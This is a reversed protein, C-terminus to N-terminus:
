AASRKRRQRWGYGSLSLAGITLLTCSAPEPVASATVGTEFKILNYHGHGTQSTGGAGWAVRQQTGAAGQYGSMRLIGDVYLEASATQLNYALEYLHYGSGLGTLTMQPGLHNSGDIPFSTALQVIPDGEATSGINVHYATTGNIYDLFVGRDLDDPTNVVRLYGTLRWGTANADAVILNSMTQQYFSAGTTSADDISWADIGLGLDNTIAAASVAGTASNVRTWGVTTPDANASYSTILGASASAAMCAMSATVVLLSQLSGSHM